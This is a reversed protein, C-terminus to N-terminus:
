FSNYNLDVIWSLYNEYYYISVPPELAILPNTNTILSINDKIASSNAGISSDYGKISSNDNGITSISINLASNNIRSTSINDKLTSDERSVITLLNGEKTSFSITYNLELVDNLTNPSKNLVKAKKILPSYSLNDISYYKILSKNITIM